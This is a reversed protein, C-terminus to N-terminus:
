GIFQKLKFYKLDSFCVKPLSLNLIFKRFLSVTGTFELKSTGAGLQIRRTSKFAFHTESSFDTVQYVLTWMINLTSLPEKGMRKGEFKFLFTYSTNFTFDLPFNMGSKPNAVRSVVQWDSKPYIDNVNKSTTAWHCRKPLPKRLIIKSFSCSICSLGVLIM